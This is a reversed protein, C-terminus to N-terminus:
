RNASSQNNSFIDLIDKRRKKMAYDIASRGKYDKKNPDLGLEFLYRIIDINGYLVAIILYSKGEIFYALRSGLEVCAKVMELSGSKIADYLPTLNAEDRENIKLSHFQVLYNLLEVNGSFATYHLCNKGNRSKAKLDAGQNILLKVQEIEGLYCYIMIPTQGNKNRRNVNNGGPGDDEAQGDSFLSKFSMKGKDSNQHSGKVVILQEKEQAGNGKIRQIEETVDSEGGTVRQFSEDVLDLHGGVISKSDDEPIEGKVRHISEGIDEREGKVLTVSDDSFGVGLREPGFYDDIMQLLEGREIPKVLTGLINLEESWILDSRIEKGTLICPFDTYKSKIYQIFPTSDEDVGLKNDIVLLDVSVLDIIREALECRGSTLVQYDGAELENKLLTIIDHDDEVILITKKNLGLIEKSFEKSKLPKKLACYVNTGKVRLKKAYDDNMHASMIALPLDKNEGAFDEKLFKILRESSIGQGMVIDIIGLSFCDHGLIDIAQDVSSCTVLDLQYPSFDHKIFNLIDPDDDLILIKHKTNEDM